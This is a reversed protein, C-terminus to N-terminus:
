KSGLLAANNTRIQASGALLLHFAPLLMPAGFSFVGFQNSVNGITAAPNARYAAEIALGFIVIAAGFTTGIWLARNSQVLADPGSSALVFLLIACSVCTIPAIITLAWFAHRQFESDIMLSAVDALSWAAFSALTIPLVILMCELAAFVRTVRQMM